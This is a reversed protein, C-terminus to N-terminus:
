NITFSSKSFSVKYLLHTHAKGDIHPLMKIDGAYSYPAVVACSSSVRQNCRSEGEIHTPNM